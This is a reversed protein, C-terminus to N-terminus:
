HLLRASSRLHRSSVVREGAARDDSDDDSVALVDGARLRGRRWGDAAVGFRLRTDAATWLSKRVRRRAAHRARQVSAPTGSSSDASSCRRRSSSLRPPTSVCVPAGPPPSSPPSPSPLPSRPPSTSLSLVSDRRRVRHPAVVAAPPPVAVSRAAPLIGLEAARVIQLACATPPSSVALAATSTVTEPVAGVCAVVTAMELTQQRSRAMSAPAAAGGASRVIKSSEAEVSAPRLSGDVGADEHDSHLHHDEAAAGADIVISVGRADRGGHGPPPGRPTTPAHQRLRVAPVRAAADSPATAATDAGGVDRRFTADFTRVGQPLVVDRRPSQLTTSRAGAIWTVAKREIEGLMQWAVRCSHRV